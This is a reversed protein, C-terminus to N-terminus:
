EKKDEFVTMHCKGCYFRPTGKKHQAMFVGDGCRQCSKNGSKKLDSTKVNKHKAM